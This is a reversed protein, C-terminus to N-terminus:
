GGCLRTKTVEDQSDDALADMCPKIKNAYNDAHVEGVIHLRILGNKDVVFSEPAGTLGLDLAMSGTYDQVSFLFPDQYENLYALAEGLEDKYNVGVMPVGKAHLEMLFPHEVRCTPCWSGWVNLIYPTTPMDDNTMTRSLDSLLPLSFTPVARNSAKTNIIDSSGAEQVNSQRLFLMVVFGIFVVLPLIFLWKRSNKKM